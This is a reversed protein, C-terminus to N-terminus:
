CSAAWNRVKNLDVHLIHLSGPQLEAMKGGKVEVSIREGCESCQSEVRVDQRFTFAAGMSDIACMASFRRGDQLLVQHNTPLASVPYIFQLNGDGNAVIARKELLSQVLDPGDDNFPANLVACDLNFPRGQSITYDMLWNRLAKEPPTLRSVISDIYLREAPYRTFNM